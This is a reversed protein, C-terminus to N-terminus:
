EPKLDQPRAIALRTLTFLDIPVDEIDPRGDQIGTIERNDIMLVGGPGSAQAPIGIFTHPIKIGLLTLVTPALDQLGSPRGIRKPEGGGYILLPVKDHARYSVYKMGVYDYVDDTISSDHDSFIAIISDDLLEAEDLREFLLEIASDVYQATIFYDDIVNSYELGRWARVPDFPPHSTLLIIHSFFPKASLAMKDVAQNVISRDSMGWPGIKESSDLDEPFYTTDFGLRVHNRRRDWCAPTNGHISFSFYGMERLIKPLSPLNSLNYSTFTSQNPVPLQSTLVLLEADTTHGVGTQDFTNEFFLSKDRLGSLFPMVPEGKYMLDLLVADIGEMQLYVLNKRKEINEPTASDHSSHRAALYSQYPSVDLSMIMAGDYRNKIYLGVDYLFYAALGIERVVNDNERRKELIIRNGSGLANHLFALWILVVLIIIGKKKIGASKKLL